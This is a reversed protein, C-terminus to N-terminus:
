VRYLIYEHRSVLIYLELTRIVFYTVLNTGHLSFFFVCPRVDTTKIRPLTSNRTYKVCVYGVSDPSNKTTDIQNKKEFRERSNNHLVKSILTKPSFSSLHWLSVHSWIKLLSYSDFCNIFLKSNFSLIAANQTHWTVNGHFILHAIGHWM